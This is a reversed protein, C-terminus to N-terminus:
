ICFILIAQAIGFSVKYQGTTLMVVARTLLLNQLRHYVMDLLQTLAQAVGGRIRARGRMM